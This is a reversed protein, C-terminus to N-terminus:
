NKGYKKKYQGQNRNQQNMISWESKQDDSLQSSM